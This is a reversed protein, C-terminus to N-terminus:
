LEFTTHLNVLIFMTLISSIKYLKKPSELHISFLVSSFGHSYDVRKELFDDVLFLSKPRMNRNIRWLINGNLNHFNRFAM